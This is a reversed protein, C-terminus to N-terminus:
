LRPSPPSLVSRDGSMGKQVGSARKVRENIRAISINCEM